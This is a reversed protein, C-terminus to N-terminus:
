RLKGAAREALQLFIPFTAPTGEMSFVEYTGSRVFGMVYINIDAGTTTSRTIKLAFSKEGLDPDPLPLVTVDDSKFGEFSLKHDDLMATANAGSFIMIDQVIVMSKDTLLPSDAYLARYGKQWGHKRMIDTVTSEEMPGDVARVLGDPLDESSLLLHDFESGTTSSPPSQAPSSTCGSFLMATMVLIGM